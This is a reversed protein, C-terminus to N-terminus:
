ADHLGIYSLTSAHDFKYNKSLLRCGKTLIEVLNQSELM